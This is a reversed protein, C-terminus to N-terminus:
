QTALGSEPPKRAGVRLTAVLPHHDSARDPDAVHASETILNRTFIWDIPYSNGTSTRMNPSPGFVSAFGAPTLGKFMASRAVPVNNFDGAIVIADTMNETKAIAHLIEELQSRRLVDGGGSEIHTNYLDLGGTHAKLAIRGGRRPQFPNLRWRMLSQHRFVIVSANVIPYKSLVAQGTLAPTGNSSEGIEQFEGAAVWNMRLSKGLAEAINRNGSRQCFMDVEQLLLVDAELRRLTKEIESFNVGRFINWSVIRLPRAGPDPVYRAPEGVIQHIRDDTLM